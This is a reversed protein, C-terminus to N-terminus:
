MQNKDPLYAPGTNLGGRQLLRLLPLQKGHVRM